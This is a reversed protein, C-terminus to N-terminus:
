AGNNGGSKRWRQMRVAAQGRLVPILRRAGASQRAVLFLGLVGLDDLPWRSYRGRHMRLRAIEALYDPAANLSVFQEITEFGVRNFRAVFESRRWRNGYEYNAAKAEALFEADSVLLHDLPRERDKHYGLDIQHLNFGGRKTIRALEACVLDLDAVHELMANSLVVDFERNQLSALNEAPEVIQRVPIAAFSSAEAARELAASGGVLTALHRYVVPHFGAQWLPPFPDAVTVRNGREALLVQAGLSHGPGLELIDLGTFRGVWRDLHRTWGDYIQKDYQAAAIPDGFTQSDQNFPTTWNPRDGGYRRRVAEDIAGTIDHGMAASAATIDAFARYRRGNVRPDSGDSTSFYLQGGRWHSYAGKGSQRIYDHPAHAPGLPQDGEFLILASRGPHEISDGAGLSEPVPTTWAAGLEAALTVPDLTHETM